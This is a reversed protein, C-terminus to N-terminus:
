RLPRSNDFAVLGVAMLVSSLILAKRPLERRIAQEAPASSM